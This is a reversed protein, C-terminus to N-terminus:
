LINAFIQSHSFLNPHPNILVHRECNQCQQLHLLMAMRCYKPRVEAVIVIKFFLYSVELKVDSM